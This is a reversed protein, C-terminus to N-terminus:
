NLYFPCCFISIFNPTCARACRCACTCQRNASRQLSCYVPLREGVQEACTSAAGRLDGTQKTMEWMVKQGKLRELDSRVDLIEAEHKAKM